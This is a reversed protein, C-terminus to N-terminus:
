RAIHFQRPCARPTGIRVCTAHVSATPCKQSPQTLLTPNEGMYQSDIILKGSLEVTVHPQFISFESNHITVHHMVLLAVSFLVRVTPIDTFQRTRVQSWGQSNCVFRGNSYGGHIEELGKGRRLLIWGCRLEERVVAGQDFPCALLVAYRMQLTLIVWWPLLLPSM